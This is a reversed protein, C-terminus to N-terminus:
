LGATQKYGEFEPYKSVVVPLNTMYIVFNNFTKNVPM